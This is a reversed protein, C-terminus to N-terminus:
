TRGGRFRSTECLIMHLRWSVNRTECPMMGSHGEASLDVSSCCEVTPCEDFVNCNEDSDFFEYRPCVSRAETFVPVTQNEETM